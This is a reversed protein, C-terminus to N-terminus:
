PVEGAPKAPDPHGEAGNAKAATENFLRLFEPGLDRCAGLDEAMQPIERDNARIAEAIQQETRLSQAAKSSAKDWDAAARKATTEVDAQYQLAQEAVRADYGAHWLKTSGFALGGISLLAAAIYAYIRIM